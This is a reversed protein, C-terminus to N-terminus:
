IAGLQILKAHFPRSGTKLLVLYIGPDFSDISVVFLGDKASLVQADLTRGAQNIIEVTPDTKDLQGTAFVIQKNDNKVEIGSIWKFHAHEYVDSPLKKWFVSTEINGKEHTITFILIEYSELLETFEVYCVQKRISMEGLRTSPFLTSMASYPLGDNESEFAMTYTRELLLEGFQQGDDLIDPSLGFNFASDLFHRHVFVALIGPLEQRETFYAPLNVQKEKLVAETSLMRSSDQAVSVAFFGLYV